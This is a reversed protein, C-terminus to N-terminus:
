DERDTGGARPHLLQNMQELAQSMVRTAARAQDREIQAAELENTLEEIQANLRAREEAELDKM